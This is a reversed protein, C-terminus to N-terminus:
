PKKERERAEALAGVMYLSAEKWADCEGGLIAECGALTDEISVTRGERGTFTTTVLFPQTLFRILRRARVVATRDEDSLEDMGLLAIIDQLERYAAITRRVEGAVHVHREGVVTPDLLNSSSALPDIAPYLGEAAMARSLVLASDLHAFTQAVAPDTFDDAPVFVAQISTMSAGPASAIREQLDAIDTALTPQYGVRSPMRGLLGSIENGAQVFRFMNDIMVLVDQKQVDRFHEAITLATQGVLWRAGPPENMQGYVLVTKALVGTSQMDHYLEHGERTREGIGVFVGVGHYSEVVARIIEMILVTKGVGAGGLLGAKGGRVIPALLDIAKIGTNLVQREVLQSMLPPAHRHIPSRPADAAIPTGGDIPLGRVDLMRGLVATGVPVSVSGGTRRAAMGRALGATENLAVCRATREDLHQAVELVVQRGGGADLEVAEHIPPPVATFAVDVVHGRIRVIHGTDEPPQNVM